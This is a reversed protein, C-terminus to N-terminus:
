PKAGPSGSNPNVPSCTVQPKPSAVCLAGISLLAVSIHDSSVKFSPITKTNQIQRTSSQSHHTKLPSHKSAELASLDEWNLVEGRQGVRCRFVIVVTGLLGFQCKGNNDCQHMARSNLKKSAFNTGQKDQVPHSKPTKSSRLPSLGRISSVAVSTGFTTLTARSKYQVELFHRQM